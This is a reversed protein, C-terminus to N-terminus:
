NYYESLCKKWHETRGEKLMEIVIAKQQKASFINDHPLNYREGFHNFTDISFQYLGWSIGHPEKSNIAHPNNSSECFALDELVKDVTRVTAAQNEVVFRNGVANITLSTGIILAFILFKKRLLKNELDKRWESKYM